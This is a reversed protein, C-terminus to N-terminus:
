KNVMTVTAELIEEKFPRFVVYLYKALFTVFRTGNRIIWKGIDEIGTIAVVFGHRGSCTGEVDKMLKSVLKELLERGFHRPPAAHKAGIFHPFFDKGCQIPAFCAAGGEGNQSHVKLFAQKSALSLRPLFKYHSAHNQKRCLHM